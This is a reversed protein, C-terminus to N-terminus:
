GNIAQTKTSERYVGAWEIKPNDVFKEVALEVSEQYDTNSLLKGVILEGNQIVQEPSLGLVRDVMANETIWEIKYPDLNLVYIVANMKSHLRRYFELEEKESKFM